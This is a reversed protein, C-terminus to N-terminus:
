WLEPARVPPHARHSAVSRCPEDFSTRGWHDELRGDARVGAIIASEAPRSLSM